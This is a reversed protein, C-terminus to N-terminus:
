SDPRRRPVAASLLLFTDLTWTRAASSVVRAKPPEGQLAILKGGRVIIHAGRSAVYAASKDGYEKLFNDWDSVDHMAIFYAPPPAQARLGETAAAGLAVGAAMALTALRYPKM